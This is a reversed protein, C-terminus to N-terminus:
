PSVAIASPKTALAAIGDLCALWPSADEAHTFVLLTMEGRPYLEWRLVDGGRVCELVRQSEYVTITGGIPSVGGPLALRLVAGCEALETHHILARWLDKPACPILREIRM